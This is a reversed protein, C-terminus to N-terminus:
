KKENKKFYVISDGRERAVYKEWVQGKWSGFTCIVAETQCNRLSIGPTSRSSHCNRHWSIMFPEYLCLIENQRSSCYKITSEKTCDHILLALPFKHNKYVVSAMVKNERPRIESLFTELPSIIHIKLYALRSTQSFETALSRGLGLNRFIQAREFFHMESSYVWTCNIERNASLGLTRWCM